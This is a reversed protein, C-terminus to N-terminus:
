SILAVPRNSSSKLALLKVSSFISDKDVEIELELIIACLIGAIKSVM